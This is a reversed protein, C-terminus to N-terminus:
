PQALVSKLWANGRPTDNVTNFGYRLGRNSPWRVARIGEPTTYEENKYSVPKARALGEVFYRKVTKTQGRIFFEKEGNVQIEFVPDANKESTDQIYVTVMENMFALNLLKEQHAPDSFHEPRPTILTAESSTGAQETFQAPEATGLDQDMAEFPKHVIVPVDKANRGVIDVLKEINSVLSDVKSELAEIKLDAETKVPASKQAASASKNRAM